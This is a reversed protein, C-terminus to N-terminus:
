STSESAEEQASRAEELEQEKKAVEAKLLKIYEIALEVTAAKSMSGGSGNKGENLPSTEGDTSVSGKAGSGSKSSSALPTGPLLTQMEELALNMRNRRGQEAIKHSTRKSTLNTSLEDPYHVGPLRNGELLNQYNSKSALLLAHTEDSVTRLPETTLWTFPRHSRSKGSDSLM